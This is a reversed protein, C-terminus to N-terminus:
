TPLGDMVDYCKLRINILIDWIGDVMFRIWLGVQMPNAAGTSKAANPNRNTENMIRLAPMRKFFDSIKKTNLWDEETPKTESVLIDGASM